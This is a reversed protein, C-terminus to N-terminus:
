FPAARHLEKGASMTLLVKADHIEEPAVKLWDRDLVVLDAAKGV